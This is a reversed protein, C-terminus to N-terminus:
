DSTDALSRRAVGCSWSCASARPSATSNKFSTSASPGIGAFLYDFFGVISPYRLLSQSTGLLERRSQTGPSCSRLSAHSPGTSTSAASPRAPRLHPKLTAVFVNLIALTARFFVTAVKFLNFARLCLFKAYILWINLIAM